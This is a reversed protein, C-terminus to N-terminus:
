RSKRENLRRFKPSQQAAEVIQAARRRWTIPQYHDPTNRRADPNTRLRYLVHRIDDPGRVVHVAKGFHKVAPIDSTILEMGSNLCHYFRLPDLYTTLAIGTRYPVFTVDYATVLQAIDSVSYAGLYRLNSQANLAEALRARMLVNNRHVEGHIDFITNQCVAAAGVLLDFDFREDISAM